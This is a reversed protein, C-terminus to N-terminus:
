YRITNRNYYSGGYSLIDFMFMLGLWFWDWGIIGGPEVIIYMITTWPLFIVGLLPWIISDFAMNFRTTQFLWFFVLAARPGM